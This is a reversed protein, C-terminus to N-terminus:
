IVHVKAVTRDKNMNTIDVRDDQKVTIPMPWLSLEGSVLVDTAHLQSATQFEADTLNTPESNM